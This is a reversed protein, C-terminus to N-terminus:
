DIFFIFIWINVYKKLERMSYQCQEVTNVVHIVLEQPFQHHTIAQPRRILPVRLEDRYSNFQNQQPQNQHPQNSQSENSSFLWEVGRYLAYGAAVGAAITAVAATATLNSDRKNGGGSM